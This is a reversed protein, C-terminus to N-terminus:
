SSILAGHYAGMSAASNTKLTWCVHRVPLISCRMGSRYAWWTAKSWDQLIHPSRSAVVYNNGIRSLLILWWVGRPTCLDTDRRGTKKLWYPVRRELERQFVDTPSRILPRWRSIPFPAFWAIMSLHSETNCLLASEGLRKDSEVLKVSGKDGAGLTSYTQGSKSHSRCM